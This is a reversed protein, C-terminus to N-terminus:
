AERTLLRWKCCTNGRRLKNLKKLALPFYRFSGLFFDIERDIAASVLIGKKQVVSYFLLRFLILSPWARLFDSCIEQLYKGRAENTYFGAVSLHSRKEHKAENAQTKTQRKFSLVIKLPIDGANFNLIRESTYNSICFITQQFMM